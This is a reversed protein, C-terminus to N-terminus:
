KESAVGTVAEVIAAAKSPKPLVAVAGAAMAERRITADVVSSFMVVRCASHPTLHLNKLFSMGSLKPMRIDCVVADYSNARFMELATMGNSCTDVAYGIRSLIASVYVIIIDDDDVVLARKKNQPSDSPM